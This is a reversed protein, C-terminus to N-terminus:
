LVNFALKALGVVALAAYIKNLHCLRAVRNYVQIAKITKIIRVSRTEMIKYVGEKLEEPPLRFVPGDDTLLWTCGHDEQNPSTASYTIAGAIREVPTLPLGALFVKTPLSLITTDAFWPHICAIRIGLLEFGPTLSRVLGLVAHKSASYLPAPAFAQWSAMSGLVVLAKLDPDHSYHGQSLYHRALSATYVTGTLNVDLTTTQMPKPRGNEDVDTKFFRGLETVGANAVVVDVSGFTKLAHEFVDVQSDWNSVDCEKFTAQGSSGEIEKVVETGGVVDLDAVVIKAGYTALKLAVEKGIGKAAGTVIVTKDKTRDAHAFLDQDPIATM